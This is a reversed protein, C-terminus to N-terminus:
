VSLKSFLFSSPLLRIQGSKGLHNQGNLHDYVHSADMIMREIWSSVLSRLLSILCPREVRGDAEAKEKQQRKNQGDQRSKSNLNGRAETNRTSIPCARRRWPEAQPGSAVTIRKLNNAVGDSGEEV